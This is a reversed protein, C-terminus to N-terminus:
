RPFCGGDSSMVIRIARSCQRTPAILRRDGASVKNVLDERVFPKRIFHIDEELVGHSVIADDTYGSMYAIKIEPLLGLIADAVEKGNMGPMVVDTLLLDFKADPKSAALMAEAGGAVATVVFGQQELM